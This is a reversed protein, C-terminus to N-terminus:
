GNKIVNSIHEEYDEIPTGDEFYEMDEECEWETWYSNGEGENYMDLWEERTYHKLLCKDSCYYEIGGGIVFGQNFVKGCEDCKRAFREM